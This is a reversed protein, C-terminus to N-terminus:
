RFVYGQGNVTEVSFGGYRISEESLACSGRTKRPGVADRRSPVPEEPQNVGEGM